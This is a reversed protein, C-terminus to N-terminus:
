SPIDMVLAVCIIRFPVSVVQHWPSCNMVMSRACDLGKKLLTIVAEECVSSIDIEQAQICHLLSLALSCQELISPPKTYVRNIIEFLTSSLNADGGATDPDPFAFSKLLNPMTAVYDGDRSVAALKLDRKQFSVRSLGLDFSAGMNLYQVVGVLRRQIEPDCISDCQFITDGYAELHLGSAEVLHMLNSSAMWTAHPSDTMRLYIVQLTWGTLFDVAAGDSLDHMEMNSRALTVLLLEIVTIKQQSFLCGIAAVGALVSDYSERGLPSQWRVDLREFFLQRDVFRYYPDVKNFYVQVLARMHELSTIDVLALPSPTNVRSSLQRAGINWGFLSSRPIKTLNINVCLRKVFSVGSATGLRQVLRHASPLGNEQAQIPPELLFESRPDPLITQKTSRLRNAPQTEASCECSWESCTVCTGSRDCKKKREQCPQCAVRSRKRKLAQMRFPNPIKSLDLRVSRASHSFM